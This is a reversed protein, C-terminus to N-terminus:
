NEFDSSTHLVLICCELLANLSGPPSEFTLWKFGLGAARLSNFGPVEKRVQKASDPSLESLLRQLCCYIGVFCRTIWPEREAGWAGSAEEERTEGRMTM